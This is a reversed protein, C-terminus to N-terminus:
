MITAEDSDNYYTIKFEYDGKLITQRSGGVMYLKFQLTIGQGFSEIIRRPIFQMLYLEM